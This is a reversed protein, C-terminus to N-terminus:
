RGAEARYPHNCGARTSFVCDLCYASQPDAADFCSEAALTDGCESCGRCSHEERHILWRRDEILVQAIGHDHVRSVVANVLSRRETPSGAPLFEGGRPYSLHAIGKALLSM